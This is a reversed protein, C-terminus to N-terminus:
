FAIRSITHFSGFVVICDGATSVRRVEEYAAVITPYSTVNKVGSQHFSDILLDLSAGRPVSLPAISWEDISDKITLITAVIDKDALMSFVARTKGRIKQKKLNRALWEASAPNHSVDLITTFVDSIIQIRGALTVRALAEDIASRLVPLKEQLLEVTMLVTSMNQLALTPLPLNDFRNKESWWTWSNNKEDFGFQKNQFFLPTNIARACEILSLPPDVDGCVAPRAERFIGAKERAIADRTTGLIDTHDLAITTVLSVDADLINVADLRGGLGVELIVIDLQSNQFIIFAALTGFEFPTLTINKRSKEIQLFAKCFLDDTVAIGQIRVQENYCFLFPSTFAGVRYGATLYISELGAVCSGKGNTGAVTVISYTPNFLNLRKAVIRVRELSLDMEKLHLTKIYVLWDSINKLQVFDGRMDHVCARVFSQITQAFTLYFLRLRNKDVHTGSVECSKKSKEM